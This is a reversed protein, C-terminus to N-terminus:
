NNKGLHDAAAARIREELRQPHDSGIYIQRDDNLTVRVARDGRASWAKKKGFGRVGWGGFDRLPRYQVSELQVIDTFAVRTKVLRVSGLHMFIGTEQVLVTLGGLLTRIAVCLTVISAVAVLRGLLPLTNDWGALLPYAGLVCAGWFIANVWGPWPTRERYTTREETM